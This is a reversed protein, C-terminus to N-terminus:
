VVSKRDLDDKFLASDRALYLPYVQQRLDDAVRYYDFIKPAQAILYCLLYAGVFFAFLRRDLQRLRM